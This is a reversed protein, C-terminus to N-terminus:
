FWTAFFVGMRTVAAASFAPTAAFLIGCSRCSRPVVAKEVDNGAFTTAATVRACCSATTDPIRHTGGCGKPKTLPITKHQISVHRNSAQDREGAQSKTHHPDDRAQAANVHIRLHIVLDLDIQLIIDVRLPVLMM